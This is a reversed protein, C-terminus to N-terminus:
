VLGVQGIVSGSGGDIVAATEVIMGLWSAGMLDVPTASVLDGHRWTGDAMDHTADFALTDGATADDNDTDDLRWFEAYNDATATSTFTSAYTNVFDDYSLDANPTWAGVLRVVPETSLSTVTLSYKLRLYASSVNDGLKIWNFGPDDIGHPQGLDATSQATTLVTNADVWRTKPSVYAVGKTGGMGPGHAVATGIAM